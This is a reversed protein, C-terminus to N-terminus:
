HNMLMAMILKSNWLIIQKRQKQQQLKRPLPKLKKQLHRKQQQHLKPQKQPRKKKKKTDEEEEEEAEAMEEGEDESNKEHKVVARSKSTHDANEARKLATRESVLSRIYEEQLTKEPDEAKLYNQTSVLTKAIFDKIASNDDKEVFHHLALHLEGEPLIELGQSPDGLYSEIIDEIKVSDLPEPRLARMLLDKELENHNKKSATPRKRHALLIENPNAVRGVFRQGFRQPNMIKFGGGYEVKLRVLPKITKEKGPYDALAKVIMEEVKNALLEVVSDNDNPDVGEESSLVIEDMIFPRVSNLPIAKLRFNEECIELLGIHKKKRNEKV